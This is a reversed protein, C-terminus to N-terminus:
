FMAASFGTAKNTISVAIEARRRVLENLESRTDVVQAPRQSAMKIFKRWIAFARIPYM